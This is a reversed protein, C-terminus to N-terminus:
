NFTKNIIKAWEQIVESSQAHFPYQENGIIITENLINRSIPTQANHAFRYAFESRDSVLSYPWTEYPISYEEFLSIAKSLTVNKLRFRLKHWVSIVDEELLTLCGKLEINLENKFIQYNDNAKQIVRPLKDLQTFALAASLETIEYSLGITDEKGPSALKKIREWINYDNTVILGGQGGCLPKVQNLSFCGVNGFTGCLQGFRSSGHAQCADEIIILNTLSNRLKIIDCPYGHLHVPIIARTLPTLKRLADEASINYTLPDVDVFIPKAGANIVPSVSGVYTLNPVLVEDGPGIGSAVLALHIAHTCSSVALCYKISIYNAFKTALKEAFPGKVFAKSEAVQLIASMDADDIIPWSTLKM